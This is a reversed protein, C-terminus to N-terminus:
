MERRVKARTKMTPAIEEKKRGLVLPTSRLQHGDNDGRCEAVKLSSGAVKLGDKKLYLCVFVSLKDTEMVDNSMKRFADNVTSGSTSNQQDLSFMGISMVTNDRSKFKM